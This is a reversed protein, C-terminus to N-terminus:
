AAGLAPRLVPHLQPLTRLQTALEAAQPTSLPRNPPLLNLWGCDGTIEAIAQKVAAQLPYRQLLLRAETAQRQLSEAEPRQAAAFVRQALPATVNTTASICGAGGARLNDLLFQESGSYVGFGPFERLLAATNPWEGSSDKLGAIREGYRKMLRAILPIAIPVTSLQPFHYLYVRLAPDAVREVVEAFFAFLGDESPSKYYFPPLLLVAHCGARVAASTVAVADALACSGAGIIFREMALGAAAAAEILEIRQGVSLSNAEGTTGLPALGDCGHDLLWQCHAVFARLNPELDRTFPTAVAAYVGRPPRSHDAAM